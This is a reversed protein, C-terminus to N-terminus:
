KDSRLINHILANVLNESDFESIRDHNRLYRRRAEAYDSYLLDFVSRVESETVTGSEYEIWRILQGIDSTEPIDNGTTVLTLSKKARSVAVNLLHPDEIFPTIVNGVTSLIVADRERGQFKHVTSVDEEGLGTKRQLLEAQRRFPTIVGISAGPNEARIRAVEAAVAEAERENVHGRAHAGPVTRIVKLAPSTANVRPEDSRDKTMVVLEGGYYMANSFGIIKPDCRYHERLLTCPVDPVTMKVSDLFSHKAANMGEPLKFMGFLHELELKNRDSVVHPLQKSDGVIVANEACAISLAGAPIAVQSAEDMIVYDFLEREQLTKASSFTSSTVVPYRWTFDPSGIPEAAGHDFDELRYAVCSRLLAMSLRQVEGQMDQLRGKALEKGLSALEEELEAIKLTCLARDLVLLKSETPLEQWRAPETFISSVRRKSLWRKLWAFLGREEEPASDDAMRVRLAMLEEYKIAWPLPRLAIDPLAVSATFNRLETEAAALLDKVRAHEREVTLLRDISKNLKRIRRRYRAATWWLLQWDSMAPLTNEAQSAKFAEVFEARGLKACLCGLDAAELKEVVNSTASNSNSVVLTSRGRIILNAIINLITQTKGTGPPGEIVSLSSSLARTVAERQSANVGFPYIVEHYTWSKVERVPYAKPDLWTHILRKETLSFDLREFYKALSLPKTSGDPSPIESLAAAHTLYQFPDRARLAEAAGLRECFVEQLGKTCSTGDSMEFYWRGFFLTSFKRAVTPFQRVLGKATKWYFRWEQPLFEEPETLVQCRARSYVYVKELYDAFVIAPGQRTLTCSAIDETRVAGDIIVMCLRPDLM